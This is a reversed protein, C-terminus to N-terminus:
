CCLRLPAFRFSLVSFKAIKKVLSLILPQLHNISCGFGTQKRDWFRDKKGDTKRSASHGTDGKTGKQGKKDGPKSFPTKPVFTVFVFRFATPAFRFDPFRSLPFWKM